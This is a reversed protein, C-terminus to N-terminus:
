ELYSCRHARCPYSQSSNLRVSLPKTRGPAVGVDFGKAVAVDLGEAIAVDFEKAVAVDLGPVPM